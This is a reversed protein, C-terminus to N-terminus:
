RDGADEGHLAEGIEWLREMEREEKEVMARMEPSPHAHRSILYRISPVCGSIYALHIAGDLDDAGERILLSIVGRNPSSAALSLAKNLTGRGARRGRRENYRGLVCRVVEYSSFRAAILFLFRLDRERLHGMSLLWTVTETKKGQIARILGRRGLRTLDHCSYGALLMDHLAADAVPVNGSACAGIFAGAPSYLEHEKLWLITDPVSLAPPSRLCDTRGKAAQMSVIYMMREVRRATGRKIEDIHGELLDVRGYRVLSAVSSTSYGGFGRLLCMGILGDSGEKCAMRMIVRFPLTNFAFGSVASTRALIYELHPDEGDRVETKERMMREIVPSRGASCPMSERNGRLAHSLIPIRAPVTDRFMWDSITRKDGLFARCKTSLYSDTSFPLLISVLSVHGAHLAVRLLSTPHIPNYLPLIPLASLSLALRILVVRGKMCARLIPSSDGTVACLLDSSVICRWRTCVHLVSLYTYDSSIFSLILSLVSDPVEDMERQHTPAKV